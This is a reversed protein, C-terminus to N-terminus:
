DKIEVFKCVIAKVSSIWRGIISSASLSKNLLKIRYARESNRRKLEEIAILQIKKQAPSEPEDGWYDIVAKLEERSLSETDKVMMEYEDQEFSM